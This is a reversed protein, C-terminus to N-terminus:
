AKMGWSAFLFNWESILLVGEEGKGEAKGGDLGSGAGEGRGRGRAGEERRLLRHEAPERRGANVALSFYLNNNIFIIVRFNHLGLEISIVKNTYQYTWYM